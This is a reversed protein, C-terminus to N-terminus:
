VEGEHGIGAPLHRGTVELFVDDLTPRTVSIREPEIGCEQLLRVISPVRSAGDTVSLRVKRGEPVAGEGLAAAADVSERPEHFGVEIVDGGLRSKLEQPAGEAVVRGDDIIAVRDALQDAEELYQTTLLITVGHDRLTRIEEWVARRSGPDLGTTPEDLLMVRPSHVFTLALDLRRKMGASYTSLRRDGVDQMDFLALLEECRTRATARGMGYLQAHLELLERATQLEDVGTEQLAAGVLLRVSDPDATVEHGAITATGASPLMLTALMLVTTTKGAGNPGLLGFIEGENVTFTVGAVAEVVTGRSRFRKYLDEAVVMPEPAGGREHSPASADRRVASPM